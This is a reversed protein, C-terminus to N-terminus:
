HNWTNGIASSSNQVWTLNYEKPKSGTTERFIDLWGGQSNVSDSHGSPKESCIQYNMTWEWLCFKFWSINECVARCKDESISLQENEQSIEIIVKAPWCKVGELMHYRRYVKCSSQLHNKSTIKRTMPFLQKKESGESEM